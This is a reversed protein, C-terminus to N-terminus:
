PSYTNKSFVKTTEYENEPSSLIAFIIVIKYYNSPNLNGPLMTM